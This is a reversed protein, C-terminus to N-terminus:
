PSHHQFKRSPASRVMLNSLMGPLVELKHLRLPPFVGGEKHHLDVRLIPKDAGMQTGQWFANWIICLIFHLTLPLLLIMLQFLCSEYNFYLCTTIHAVEFQKLTSMFNNTSEEDMFNLRMSSKKAAMQISMSLVHCLILLQIM